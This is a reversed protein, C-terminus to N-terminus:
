TDTARNFAGVAELRSHPRVTTQPARADQLLEHDTRSQENPATQSEGARVPRNNVQQPGHAINAQQVFAVPRPNKMEHLTELTARCQAQAKLALRLYTECAGMYEGANSAARRSLNGFITQLVVAQGYLMEEASRMDGDKAVRSTADRLDAALENMTLTGFMAAWPELAAANQVAATNVLEHPEAYKKPPGDNAATAKKTGTSATRKL